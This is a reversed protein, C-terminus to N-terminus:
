GAAAAALVGAAAINKVLDTSFGHREQLYAPDNWTLTVKGEADAAILLKLPLDLAALPAALMVPTGASPSGFILLKTDPMSLGAKAAEGSHDVVAFLTIGRSTLIKEIRAVTEGVAYKSLVSVMGGHIFESM